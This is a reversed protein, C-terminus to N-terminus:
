DPELSATTGCHENGGTLDDRVLALLDALRGRQEPTLARFLADDVDGQAGAAAALRARGADTLTVVHRRRDAPDRRRAVLGADELPNLQTVLVSPAEDVEVALASQGLDGRERLLDLLRFQRPSLEHAQHALRLRRMAEHGLLALMLAPSDRNGVSV